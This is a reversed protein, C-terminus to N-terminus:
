SNPLAFFEAAALRNRLLVMRVPKSRRGLAYEAQGGRKIGLVVALFRWEFYQHEQSSLLGM